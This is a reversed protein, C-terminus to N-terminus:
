LTEFTKEESNSFNMTTYYITSVTKLEDNNWTAAPSIIPLTVVDGHEPNLWMCKAIWVLFPIISGLLYRPGRKNCM